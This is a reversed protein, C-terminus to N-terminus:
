PRARRGAAARRAFQRPAQFLRFASIWKALKLASTFARTAQKSPVLQFCENPPRLPDSEKASSSEPVSTTANVPVAPCVKVRAAMDPFQGQRPRCRRVAHPVREVVRDDAVAGRVPNDASPAVVHQGAARALVDEDEVSGQHRTRYSVPFKCSPRTKRRKRRQSTRSGAPVSRVPPMSAM